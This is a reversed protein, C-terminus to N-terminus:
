FCKNHFFPFSISIWRFFVCVGPSNGQCFGIIAISMFMVLKWSLRKYLKPLATFNFIFCMLLVQWVKLLLHYFLPISAFTHIDKIHLIGHPELQLFSSCQCLLCLKPINSVIAMVILKYQRDPLWPSRLQISPKFTVNLKLFLPPRVRTTVLGHKMSRWSFTEGLNQRM